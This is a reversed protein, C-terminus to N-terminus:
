GDVSEVLRPAMGFGLYSVRAGKRLAFKVRTEIPFRVKSIPLTVALVTLGMDQSTYFFGVPDFRYTDSMENAFKFVARRASEKDPIVACSTVVVNLSMLFGFGIGEVNTNVKTKYGSAFVEM